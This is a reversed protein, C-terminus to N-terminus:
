KINPLSDGQNVNISSVFYYGLESTYDGRDASSPDSITNGSHDLNTAVDYGPKGSWMGNNYRRYFHFDTGPWIACYIKLKSESSTGSSTTREFGDQYLALDVAFGTSTQIPYGSADGPQAFTDTRRNAAYNYCNNLMQISGSPFDNWYSPSYNTGTWYTSPTANSLVIGFTEWAGPSTRDAVLWYGGGSEACIWKGDNVQLAIQDGNAIGGTGNMKKVTFIEWGGASIRNARIAGGGGGEAAVFQGNARTRLTITDGDTLSGGNLDDLIFTEFLGASSADADVAGRPYGSDGLAGGGGFAATIWKSDNVQMKIFYQAASATSNVLAGILALALIRAFVINSASHEM